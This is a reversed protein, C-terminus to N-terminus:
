RKPTHNGILSCPILEHYRELSYGFKNARSELEPTIPYAQRNMPFERNKDWMSFYKDNVNPRIDNGVPSSDVGLFKYINDMEIQPNQVFDEYRVIFASNLYSLDKALIEYGRLTHEVLSEISTRSWKQTAYGVALPHRLIIIFKSKPFLGQLFRTKILNPPSKEVYYECKKNFYRGWQMMINNASHETALPHDETMYAGSDFIYKGPGGFASAPKYVSQLHQGEDEPVGTHSCGSISAHRKMIKHLLSTGSRHHGAIFVFKKDIM